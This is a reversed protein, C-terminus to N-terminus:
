AELLIRSIAFGDLTARSGDVPSLHDMYDPAEAAAAFHEADLLAHRGAGPVAIRVPDPGANGVWIEVGMEGDAAFGVVPASAAFDLARMTAGRLRSLGRLVHFVPYVGGHDEFWPRPFDAPASVVGFPGTGAGLTVAAAGGSAFHAFYGLAWVAGLLGRQRPDNWNMAQRINDPNSKAAAGYPNDRVGIASPGVAWPTHGAIASVSKVIAPHAERTEMVSRDDGAHVMPSTTFSVLDLHDVPPRKRNLETFYSFMGGGIRTGPFAARAADYLASADPAEPWVSGPLTCKLDPAPSVLVTTFPADIDAALAGLAQVEARAGLDDTRAVVAELWPEAGIDGAVDLMAALTEKGHDARPDHHLVAHAPGLARLATADASTAVDEPRLGIGLPPVPGTAAGPNLDVPGDDVKVSGEGSLTITVRQDVGHGPAIRYPWPKALPRVYTKYSADTWNRQDEMEYTDGEMLTHVEVRGPTRHTLARLDMMPQLPDIIEPFHGDILRGDTHEITVAAGAVGEIPHLIVFGTRNTLFGAQTAGKGAFTLRGDAHGEIVADYAFSQEADAAVAHLTVRFSDRAETIELDSIVPNYTGWDKDRVIFSVARLVEEGNWRIYRLNGAELEASLKGARLMRPPPVPEETGYFAIARSPNQM